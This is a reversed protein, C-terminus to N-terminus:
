KSTAGTVLLMADHKFTKGYMGWRFLTTGEPRDYHGKGVKKGNLFVEYDHGNDRIKIHFTKGTMRTAITKDKQHRRHNMIVDGNDNMNLAIGWDNVNNRAQFIMCDHPKIITYYGEWEHWKGKKWQLKSNFAEIRGADPRSNRVNHEGEFMRFIQTNGDEQYWRTWRSFRKRIISAHCPTHLMIDKPISNKNGTVKDLIANNVDVKSGVVGGESSKGVPFAKNKILSKFSPDKGTTKYLEKPSYKKHRGSTNFADSQGSSATVLVTATLICLLCTNKPLSKLRM